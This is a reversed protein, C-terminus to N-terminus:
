SVLQYSCVLTLMKCIMVKKFLFYMGPHFLPSHIAMDSSDTSTQSLSTQPQSTHSIETLPEVEWIRV